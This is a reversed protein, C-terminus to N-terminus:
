RRKGVMGTLQDTARTNQALQETMVRVSDAVKAHAAAGEYLVDRSKAAESVRKEHLERIVQHCAELSSEVKYMKWILFGIVLGPAGYKLAETILTIIVQEM